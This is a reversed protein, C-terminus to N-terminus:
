RYVMRANNASPPSITGDSAAHELLELV